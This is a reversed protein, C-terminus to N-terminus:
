FVKEKVLVKHLVRFLEVVRQCHCTDTDLLYTHRAEIRSHAYLTLNVMVNTSRKGIQTTGWAKSLDVKVIWGMLQIITTGVSVIWDGSHATKALLVVPWEHTCGM